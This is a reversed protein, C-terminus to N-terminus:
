AFCVAFSFFAIKILQFGHIHPSQDGKDLFVNYVRDKYNHCHSTKVEGYKQITGFFFFLM